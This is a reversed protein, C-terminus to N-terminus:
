KGTLMKSAIVVLSFVALGLGAKKLVEATKSSAVPLPKEPQSVSTANRSAIEYSKM